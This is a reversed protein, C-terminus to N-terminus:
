RLTRVQLWNRVLFVGVAVLSAFGVTLGVFISADFRYHGSAPNYLTCLLRVRNWIGTLSTFDENGGFVLYKLPEVLAPVEFDAGYIQRYVRGERDLVTTQAAHDFGKASPFFVFGLDRALNNVTEADASLFRWNPADIGHSRAFARMRQPTDAASDFGVTVISFSNEGLAERAVAASRGLLDVVLPCVSTCGTYVLNVVLPRGRFDSLKVPRGETDLFAYDGVTRGLVSQSQRFTEEPTYGSGPSPEGWAPAAGCLVAALLLCPVWGGSRARASAPNTGTM